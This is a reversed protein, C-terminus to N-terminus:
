IPSKHHKEIDTDMPARLASSLIKVFDTMSSKCDKNKLSFKGFKRGSEYM